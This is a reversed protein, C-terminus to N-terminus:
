GHTKEYLPWSEVVSYLSGHEGRRSEMLVFQDFRVVFGPSLERPWSFKKAVHLDIKRALTLHPRFPKIDPAFGATLAADRLAEALATGEPSERGPSTACLIRPKEWVELADFRLEGASGRVGAAAARLADVREAAVAGIFCVTAHLNTIPVLPVALELAVPSAADILAAAIASPPRLAFFLRPM